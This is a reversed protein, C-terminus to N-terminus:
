PKKWWAIGCVVCAIAMFAVTGKILVVPDDAVLALVAILAFYFFVLAKVKNYTM